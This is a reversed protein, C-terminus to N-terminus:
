RLPSRYLNQVPAQTSILIQRCYRCIKNQLQLVGYYRAIPELFAPEPYYLEDQGILFVGQQLAFRQVQLSSQHPSLVMAQQCDYRDKAEDAAAVVSLEIEEREVRCWVRERGRVLLLYTAPDDPINKIQTEYGQAHLVAIARKLFESDTMDDIGVLSPREPRRRTYSSVLLWVGFGGALWVVGASGFYAEVTTIGFISLLVITTGKILGKRSRKARRVKRVEVQAHSPEQM